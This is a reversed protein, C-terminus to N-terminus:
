EAPNLVRGMFLAGTREDYIAFIFRRDVKFEPIVTVPGGGGGRGMVVTAGAAETGKETVNIFAQHLAKELILGEPSIASFDAEDSFADIMGM